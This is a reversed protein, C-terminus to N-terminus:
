ALAKKLTFGLTLLGTGLLLLSSPEPVPPTASCTSAVGDIDSCFKVTDVSGDTWKITAATQLTGDETIQCGVGPNVNGCFQIAGNDRDSQFGFNELHVIHGIPDTFTSVTIDVQDSVVGISDGIFIHQDPSPTADVPFTPPLLAVGCSEFLLVITCTPFGFGFVRSFGSPNSPIVTVTLVENVDNFVVTDARGPATVLLLGGALILFTKTLLRM